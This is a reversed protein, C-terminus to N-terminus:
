VEDRIKWDSIVDIDAFIIVSDASEEIPIPDDHLSSDPRIRQPKIDDLSEDELLSSFMYINKNKNKKKWQELYKRAYTSKESGSPGTMYIYIYIGFCGIYM